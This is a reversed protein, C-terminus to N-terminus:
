LYVMIYDLEYNLILAGTHVLLLSPEMVDSM